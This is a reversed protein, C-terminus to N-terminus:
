NPNKIKDCPVYNIRLLNMCRALNKAATDIQDATPVRANGLRSTSIGGGFGRRGDRVIRIFTWLLEFDELM